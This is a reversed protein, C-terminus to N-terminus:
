NGIAQPSKKDTEEKIKDSPISVGSSSSIVSDDVVSSNPRVKWVFLKNDTVTSNQIRTQPQHGTPNRKIYDATTRDTQRRGTCHKIKQWCPPRPTIGKQLTWKVGPSYSWKSPKLVEDKGYANVKWSSVSTLTNSLSPTFTRPHESRLFKGYVM